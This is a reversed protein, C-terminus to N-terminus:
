RAPRAALRVAQMRPGAFSVTCEPTRYCMTARALQEVFEMEGAPALLEVTYQRRADLPFTTGNIVAVAAPETEQVGQPGTEAVCVLRLIDESLGCLWNTQAQAQPVGFGLLATFVAIAFRRM